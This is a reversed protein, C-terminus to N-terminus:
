LGCPEVDGPALRLKTYTAEGGHSRVLTGVREAGPNVFRCSDIVRLRAGDITYTVRSPNSPGINRATIMKKTADFTVNTLSALSRALPSTATFRRSASDFLFVEGLSLVVDPYGDFNADIIEVSALLTWASVGRREVRLTQSIGRGRVELTAEAVGVHDTAHGRVVLGHAGIERFAGAGPSALHVALLPALLLPSSV